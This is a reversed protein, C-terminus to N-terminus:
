GASTSPTRTPLTGSARPSTAACSRTAARPRPRVPRWPTSPAGYGSLSLLASPNTYGDKTLNRYIAAIQADTFGKRLDAGKDKSRGALEFVWNPDDLFPAAQSVDAAPEVGVGAVMHDVYGAMLRDADPVDDGCGVFISLQGASRHTGLFAGWLRVNPSGRYSNREFWDCFNRLLRSFAAEDMADWSWSLFRRKM